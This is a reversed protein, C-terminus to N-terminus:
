IGIQLVKHTLTYYVGVITFAAVGAVLLWGEETTNTGALIFHRIYCVIIASVITM